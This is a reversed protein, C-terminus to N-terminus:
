GRQGKEMEREREEERPNGREKQREREGGKAREAKGIETRLKKAKAQNERKGCDYSFFEM